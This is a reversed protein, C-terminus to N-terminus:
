PASAEARPAPPMPRARPRHSPSVHFDDFIKKQEVSLGGYFAKLVVLHERMAQLRSQLSEQMREAREVNSLRAWGDINRSSQRRMGNESELLEKWASEQTSDLKLAAHLKQQRQAMRQAGYDSAFGHDQMPGCVVDAIVPLSFLSLSLALFIPPLLLRSHSM